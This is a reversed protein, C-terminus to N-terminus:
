ERPRLSSVNECPVVTPSVILRANQPAAATAAMDSIAAPLPLLRDARHQAPYEYLEPRLTPHTRLWKNKYLDRDAADILQELTPQDLLESCAFGTTAGIRFSRDDCAWQLAAIQAAVRAALRQVDNIELGAVAMVFEDGGYRAVLDSPRTHNQFLLGVDRLVRDGALHGYTDNVAKFADLDFLVLSFRANGALMREAEAAFFRRNFVTTLEDRMALGYLERMTADATRQRTALRRAAALKAMLEAESASKPMVDDFGADLATIRTAVDERATLMLAYLAKTADNARVGAIVGTGTLRPMAQDIVAVDYSGRALQEAAAEGDCATDVSFGLRQALGCIYALYNADDEAVLLRLPAAGAAM